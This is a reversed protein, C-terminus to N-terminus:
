WLKINNAALVDRLYFVYFLVLAVSVVTLGAVLLINGKSFKLDGKGVDCGFRRLVPLFTNLILVILVSELPFMVLNKVIRAANVVSYAKLYPLLGLVFMWKMFLSTLIINCIFSVTFRALLVRPVSLQKKWFFLAFIFSSSMEVFIFPFFYAGSPFLIAGITDCIAGVALGVLPGYVISGLANVYADFTISLGGPIAPIKIAKVVIRLACILAAFVLMRSNQFNRAAEKWYAKVSPKPTQATEEVATSEVAEVKENEM